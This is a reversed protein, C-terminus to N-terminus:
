SGGDALGYLGYLASQAQLTRRIQSPSAPFQSTVQLGATAPDKQGRLITESVGLGLLQGQLNDHGYHVGLFVRSAGNELQAQSFTRVARSEVKGTGSNTGTM